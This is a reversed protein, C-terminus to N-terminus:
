KYNRSKKYHLNPRILDAEQISVRGTRDIRMKQDIDDFVYRFMAENHKEITVPKGRLKYRSYNSKLDIYKQKFAKKKLKKAKGVSIQLISSLARDAIPFYHPPRPKTSACERKITSKGNGMGGKYRQFNALRGLVIGAFFAQPDKVKTVDYEVGVVYKFQMRKFVKKWSRVTYVKGKAVIWGIEELYKLYRRITRHSRDLYDSLVSIQRKNLYTYGPTEQKLLHFCHIPYEKSQSLAFDAIEVPVIIM